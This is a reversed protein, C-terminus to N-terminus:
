NDQHLFLIACQPHADVISGEVLLRQLVSVGNRVDILKSSGLVERLYIQARPIMLNPHPSIIDGLCHKSAIVVMKLEQNHGKPQGVSRGGEM